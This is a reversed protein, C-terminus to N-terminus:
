EQEELQRLLSLVEKVYHERVFPRRRPISLCMLGRSYFYHSGGGGPQRVEFGYARLLRDLSEFRVHKPGEEIRKRLKELKTMSYGAQRLSVMYSVMLCISLYVETGVKGVPQLGVHPPIKTAVLTPCM